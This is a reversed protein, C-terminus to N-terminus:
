RKRATGESHAATPSRSAQRSSPRHPLLRGIAPAAEDMSRRVPTFLIPAGESSHRSNGRMPPVAPHEQKLEFVQKLFATVAAVTKDHANANYAVTVGKRVCADTYDFPKETATNVLIGRADEVITCERTTVFLPLPLVGQSKLGPVDFLHRANPFEIMEADMGAHKLRKVYDRCPAASNWDDDAGHFIRVPGTLDDDERFTHNCAPYMGIFAAFRVGDPPGYLREFRAMSAHLAVQGSRSGGMLVIRRPDIQPHRSLLELGRYADIVMNLRGLRSPETAVEVIGRNAFSDITLTAIGLKNLALAWQEIWHFTGRLGGAGHLLVVAPVKKQDESPLRLLAGLMVPTAAAMNHNLFDTDSITVSPLAYIEERMVVAGATGQLLVFAAALILCAIARMTEPPRLMTQSTHLSPRRSVKGASVSSGDPSRYLPPPQPAPQTFRYPLAHDCGSPPRSSPRTEAIEAKIEAAVSRVLSRDYHVGFRAKLRACPAADRINPRDAIWLTLAAREDFSM